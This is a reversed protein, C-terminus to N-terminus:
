GSAAEVRNRGDRKARYMAADAAALLARPDRYHASMAVLGISASVARDPAAIIWRRSLLALLFKEAWLRAGDLDSHTLLVCFEEGGFRAPLDEARCSV